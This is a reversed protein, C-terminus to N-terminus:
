SLREQVAAIIELALANDETKRDHWDPHTLLTVGYVQDMTEITMRTTDATLSELNVEIQTRHPTLVLYRREMGSFAVFTGRKDRTYLDLEMERLVAKTTQWAEDFPANLTVEDLIAFGRTDRAARACGLGAVVAVLLVIHVIALRKM